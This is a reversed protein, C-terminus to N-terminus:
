SKVKQAERLDKVIQRARATTQDLVYEYKYVDDYGDDGYQALDCLTELISALEGYTYVEYPNV